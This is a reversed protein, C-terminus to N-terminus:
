EAPLLLFLQQEALLDKGLLVIESDVGVVNDLTHSKGFLEITLYYALKWKQIGDYDGVQIIHYAVFGLDSLMSTPVCSYDAGTDIIARTQLFKQPSLSNRIVVSVESDATVCRFKTGNGDPPTNASQQM